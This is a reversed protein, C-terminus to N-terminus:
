HIIPNDKSEEYDILRATEDVLAVEAFAELLEARVFVDDERSGEVPANRRGGM